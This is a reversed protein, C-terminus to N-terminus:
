FRGNIRDEMYKKFNKYNGDALGNTECYRRYNIWNIAKLTHMKM